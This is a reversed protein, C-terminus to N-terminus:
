SKKGLAEQEVDRELVEWMVKNRLHLNINPPQMQTQMKLKKDSVEKAQKKFLIIEEKAARVFDIWKIEGHNSFLTHLDKRCTLDDLNGGFKLLCGIKEERPKM